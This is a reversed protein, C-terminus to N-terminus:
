NALPVWFKKEKKWSNPWEGIVTPRVEGYRAADVPRQQSYDRTTLSVPSWRSGNTGTEVTYNGVELANLRRTYINSYQIKRSPLIDARQWAWSLRHCPIKSELSNSILGPLFLLTFSGRADRVFFPLNM